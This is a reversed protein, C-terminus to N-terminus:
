SKSHRLSLAVGAMFGIVSGVAAGLTVVPPIVGRIVGLLVDEFGQPAVQQQILPTLPKSVQSTGLAQLAPSSAEAPDLLGLNMAFYDKSAALVESLNVTGTMLPSVSESVFSSIVVFLASTSVAGLVACASASAVISRFNNPKTNQLDHPVIFETVKEPCTSSSRAANKLEVFVPGQPIELQVLDSSNVSVCSQDGNTQQRAQPSQKTTTGFGM